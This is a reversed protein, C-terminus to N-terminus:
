QNQEIASIDQNEDQRQLPTAANAAEIPLLPTAPNAAEIPLLTQINGPAYSPESSQSEIALQQSNDDQRQAVQMRQMIQSISPALLSDLTWNSIFAVAKPAISELKTFQITIVQGSHNDCIWKGLESTRFLQIKNHKAVEDQANQDFYIVLTWTVEPSHQEIIECAGHFDGNNYSVRRGCGDSEACLIIDASEEIMTVKRYIGYILNYQNPIIEFEPLASMM